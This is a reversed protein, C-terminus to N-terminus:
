LAIHNFASSIKCNSFTVQFPYDPEATHSTSRSGSMSRNVGSVQSKSSKVSENLPLVTLGQPKMSAELSADSVEIESTQSAQRLNSMENGDMLLSQGLSSVSKVRAKPVPLEGAKVNTAWSTESGTKNGHGPFSQSSM